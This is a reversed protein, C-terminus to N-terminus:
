AECDWQASVWMWGGPFCLGFHMLDLSLLVDAIALLLTVYVGSCWANYLRLV